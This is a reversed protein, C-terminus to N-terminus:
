LWGLRGLPWIRVFARGVILKQNIPGFARSDKSNCRNDGMVFVSNAPVTVDSYQPSLPGTGTCGSALHVYPETLAEGNIWVKGDKIQLHDGPLGIVRKILDPVSTDPESPPREFVVVDGRHVDHLKYSLKNVLVRDDKRLTAEMSGSPIWFAAILFARLLLAVLLAGVIVLVWEILSRTSSRDNKEDATDGDVFAAASSSRKTPESMGTGSEVRTIPPDAPGNGPMGTPPPLTSAPAGSPPPLPAPSNM